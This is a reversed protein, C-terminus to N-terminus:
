GWVPWNWKGMFFSWGWPGPNLKSILYFHYEYRHKILM